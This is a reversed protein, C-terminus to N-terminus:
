CLAVAVVRGNAAAVNRLTQTKRTKAQKTKSICRKCVSPRTATPQLGILTPKHIRHNRNTPYFLHLKLPNLQPTGEQCKYRTQLGAATDHVTVTSLPIRLSTLDINTTQRIHKALQNPWNFFSSPVALRQRCWLLEKGDISKSSLIANRSGDLQMWYWGRIIRRVLPRGSKHRPNIYTLVKLAVASMHDWRDAFALKICTSYGVCELFFFAGGCASYDDAPCRACGSLLRPVHLVFL